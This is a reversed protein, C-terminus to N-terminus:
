IFELPEYSRGLVAPTARCDLWRDLVTAYVRRFDTGFVLDCNKELNLSPAAGHLRGRVRTGMVFLPAATGHDTGRSENESPGRGFESFTMTLVQDGLKKAELDEQFAALGNSLTRLVHQHTSLQNAHTDFGGLTVHYVRTSFGAAILAAVSRLSQAFRNQPYVAEACYRSLAGQLRHEMVLANMMAQRPFSHSDHGNQGAAHEVIPELQRRNDTRAPARQHPSMGLTAHVESSRFSQPMEATLHVAWPGEPPAGARTHDLFRGIWGSALVEESDSGTEWIETSRFHSRNPNSYGVNQVIALKGSESLRHMAAMAPHLGLLDNVRLVQAKPLALTPRLRYYNPDEFPVVTNLGDNGGALQVLVLVTRDKEPAPTATLTSGILFSPACRSFALLGIAKGTSQLFDRRTSPFRHLANRM